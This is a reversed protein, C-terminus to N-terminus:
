EESPTNTDSTWQGVGMRDIDEADRRSLIEDVEDQSVNPYKRLITEQDLYQAQSNVMQVQELQNAVKNRTFVPTDEIGVINLLQQLFKSVQNEFDSAANDVPQYAAQIETATKANASISSTDLACFDRYMGARLDDLMVRRAEYPIQQAYPTVKGGQSTDATAVHNLLLRDRFKALDKDTMGGYNEILWYVQACDTLDNAFGSKIIDYADISQKLGVLTSEHTRSGWMPIIPLKGYNEEGIIEPAVDAPAQQYTVKYAHQEDQQKLTTDDENAAKFVTYGSEEYLVAQLPRDPSLRWYRIGARLAGTEEDWLPVFETYPFLYLKDLNWMGFAVGHKLAAYAVDFLATDIEKDGLAEKTKDGERDSSAFSIGNGLSYSCRQINLISFFNSAIKNNSATWNEVSQGTITFITQVYDNITKNRQKDYLDAEVATRVPLSTKHINIADLIFEELSDTRGEFDQFTTFLRTSKM